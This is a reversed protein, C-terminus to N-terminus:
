VAMESRRVPFHGPSDLKAQQRKGHNPPRGNMWEYVQDQVLNTLAFFAFALALAAVMKTSLRVLELGYIMVLVGLVIDALWGALYFGVMDGGSPSPGYPLSIYGDHFCWGELGKVGLQVLVAGLLLILTLV